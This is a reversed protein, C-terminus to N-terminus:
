PELIAVEAQFSRGGVAITMRLPRGNHVAAAAAQPQPAAPAPPPAPAAVPAPSPAPAAPRPNIKQEYFDLWVKPFIAYSLVDEDNRAKGEVEQRIKDWENPILDAPRVTIPQEDGLVKKQIEPDVPAPTEGYRGAFINRSEEPVTQYRNGTLVNMVAQTGVIQSTPTVLPIYGMEKRVRPVEELVEDIRDFCNMKKLQSELNSLMGGPIQSVFIRPDAGTFTSEFESYKPRIKRVYDAIPLLDEQKLGTDHPTTRLTEVIAETPVHGSGLSLASIATDVGDAGAEIARLLVMPAVGTTAHTHVHVPIKVAEKLARVLEYAPVPTMLAAMDKVVLSQCGLDEIQRATQVFKELTHVPSVTYCIAGQAHAGGKLVARVATKLNRVDNLADFIRFVDMGNAISRDVFREVIDDAYNRYGLINQGRLLMQLPTRPLHKKLTRLREWPDEGLFRLCSDFTAGGWVELSWYGVKDLQECIPVMDETRMRTALLSQHADRLLLETIRIPKPANTDDAGAM